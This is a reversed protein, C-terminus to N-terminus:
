SLEASASVLAGFRGRRWDGLDTTPLSGWGHLVYGAIRTLVWAHFLLDAVAGPALPALTTKVTSNANAIVRWYHQRVEKDAKEPALELDTLRDLVALAEGARVGATGADDEFRGILDYPSTGIHVLMGGPSQAPDARARDFMDILLRRRTATSVDYLVDKAGLASALEGGLGPGITIESTGAMGRSANVVVLHTAAAAQAGKLLASGGPLKKAYAKRNEFGWEWQDAMNDYAGGDSVVVVGGAEEPLVRITRALFAGPLCASAQVATAV